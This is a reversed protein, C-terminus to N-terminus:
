SCSAKRVQHTPRHNPFWLLHTYGSRDARQLWFVNRSIVNERISALVRLERRAALGAMEVM